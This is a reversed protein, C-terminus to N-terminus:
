PFDIILITRLSEQIYRSDRPFTWLCTGPQLVGPIEEVPGRARIEELAKHPNEPLHPRVWPQWPCPVLPVPVIGWPSAPCLKPWLQWTKRTTLTCSSPATLGGRPLPQFHLPFKQMWFPALKAYPFLRTRCHSSNTHMYIGVRQQLCDLSRTQTGYARRLESFVSSGKWGVHHPVTRRACPMGPDHTM